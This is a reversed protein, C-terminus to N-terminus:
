PQVKTLYVGAHVGGFGLSSVLVSDGTWSAGLDQSYHSHFHASINKSHPLGFVNKNELCKLGAIIDIACSVALTHGVCWKTATVLPANNGYLAHFVLDETADNLVTGTGHAIVLSPKERGRTVEQLALYLSRGKDDPRTAAVGECNVAAFIQTSGARFENSLCLVAAAEGLQLGSREEDFSQVHSNQTLAQLSHFGRLVFEGVSDCAVIFIHDARDLKFWQDAITIAVAVSACASSVVTQHNPELQHRKLFDTLLPTLSDPTDSTENWVLDEAFGKTSAFLVGIRGNFISESTKEAMETWADDLLTSLRDRHSLTLPLDRRWHVHYNPLRAERNKLVPTDALKTTANKGERLHNWFHTSTPGTSTSAGYSVLWM